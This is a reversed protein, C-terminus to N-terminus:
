HNEQVVFEIKGLQNGMFAPSAWCQPHATKSDRLMQLKAARMAGVYNDGQGLAELFCSAMQRAHATNIQFFTFYVNHAGAMIFATNLAIPSEGTLVHGISARCTTLMILEAQLNMVAVQEPTLLVEEPHNQPNSVDRYWVLASRDTSHAILHILQYSPLGHLFDQHPHEIIRTEVTIGAKKLLVECQQAILEMGQHPRVEIESVDTAVIQLARQIPAAKITPERNTVYLAAISAHYSVKYKRILFNVERFDQNAVEEKHANILVEFPFFALKQDGIFYIRRVTQLLKQHALSRILFNYLKISEEKFREDDDLQPHPLNLYYLVEDIAARFSPGEYAHEPLHVLEFLEGKGQIVFAFVGQTNHLFYYIAAGREGEDFRRWFNQLDIDEFPTVIHKAMDNIVENNRKILQERRSQIFQRLKQNHEPSPQYNPDLLLNQELDHLLSNTNQDDKYLWDLKQKHQPLLVSELLYTAHCDPLLKFLEQKLENIQERVVLLQPMNGLQKEMLKLHTLQKYGIEVYLEFTERVRKSLELKSEGTPLKQRILRIVEKAVRLTSQAMEIFQRSSGEEQTEHQAFLAKAKFFLAEHLYSLDQVNEIQERNPNEALDLSITKTLVQISRQAYEAAQVYRQHEFFRKSIQNYTASIKLKASGQLAERVLLEQEFHGLIVEADLPEPNSQIYDKLYWRAKLNLVNALYRHERNQFSEKLLYIIQSVLKESKKYYTGNNQKYQCKAQLYLAGVVYIHSSPLKKLWEKICTLLRVAKDNLNLRMFVEAILTMVRGILYNKQNSNFAEQYNILAEYYCLLASFYDSCKFYGKGAVVLSQGLSVKQWDQSIFISNNRKLNVAEEAMEITKEYNGEYFHLEGWNHLYEAHLRPYQFILAEQEMQLQEIRLKVESNYGQLLQFRCFMLIASVYSPQTNKWRKNIEDSEFREIRSRFYEAGGPLDNQEFFLGFDEYDQEFNKEM